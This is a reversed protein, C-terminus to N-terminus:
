AAEARAQRETLRAALRLAAILSAPRARGTGAIDLATGHDPSTRVFPLGLTVNVTDDFAITKVPILAQDHTPCLAADYTTRAHPHFLTDAPLPGFADIGEARLAAIAPAMVDIEERGISGGEGAHPNLGAIALRPRALGFRTTLDAAVVRAVTVIREKTLQAPVSAHPIHVTMPVTRLEPGALMMVAHHPGPAFHAALAELYETHGPHAFGAEMLSQKQIPNTVVARAQGQRVAEVAIDIAAIVATADRPDSHGAVTGAVPGVPIIPLKTSFCVSAHAFDTEDLDVALGLLRARRDVAAPDAILAFPPLGLEVRTTWAALTVDLGIGGPDGMTLALPPVPPPRVSM